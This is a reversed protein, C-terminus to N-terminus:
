DMNTAVNENNLTARPNNGFCVSATGSYFQDNSPATIDYFYTGANVRILQILLGDTISPHVRTGLIFEKNAYNIAEFFKLRNTDPSILEETIYSSKIVDGLDIKAVRFNIPNTTNTFNFSNNATIQFYNNPEQYIVTCENIFDNLTNKNAFRSHNANVFGTM